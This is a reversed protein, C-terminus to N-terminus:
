GLFELLEEAQRLGDQYGLEILAQCYGSGFLLYSALRWDKGWGGLSRLLLRVSRPIEAMHERTLDRLDRSPRIVLSDVRRMALGHHQDAPLRSIVLNNRALRQLDSTLTDMFICDLLYGGIEGLSPYPMDQLPAEDPKEDRTGIVLVRTAGLNIAPSLPTLMRMGGDGFFEPGIKEAPFILPLAASALLHDVSLQAPRGERRPSKWAKLNAQGQYFSVASASRYGSATVAVARLSSRDLAMQVGELQLNAQLFERLPQNDLLSRPNKVWRGGLTLSFLWRLGNSLVTWGDTRYIRDCHMSAWFKELRLVGEAFEHAHSALTAANIAGASVGCILPFPNAKVDGRIETIAKLVGVQYASRAGGGPLILATVAGAPPLTESPPINEAVVEM